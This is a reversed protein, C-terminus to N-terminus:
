DGRIEEGTRDFSGIEVVKGGDGRRYRVEVAGDPRAVRYLSRIVRGGADLEHVEDLVDGRHVEARVPAGDRRVLRWRAADEPTVLETAAVASAPTAATMEEIEYGPAAAVESTRVDPVLLAAIELQEGDREILLGARRGWRLEALLFRLESLSTPRQGNVDIVVDGSSFGVAEATTDPWVMSVKPRGADDEALRLGLRPFADIGGRDAFVGVYDALSRVFTAPPDEAGDSHHGGGMPHGSPEDDPSPAPATVPCFTAIDLPPLGAASREDDLRRSIGLGYAVHGSGVVLVVTTDDAVVDLISRAM